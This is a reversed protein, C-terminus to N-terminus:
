KSQLFKGREIARKRIAEKYQKYIRPLSTRYHTHSRLERMFKSTDFTSKFIDQNLKKVAGSHPSFFLEEM